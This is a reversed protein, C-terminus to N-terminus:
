GIYPTPPEIDGRHELRGQDCIEVLADVDFHPGFIAKDKYKFGERCRHEYSTLACKFATQIIESKTAHTSVMWKRTKQIEVVGTYADPEEYCAQLLLTGNKDIVFFGYGELKVEQLLLNMENANM